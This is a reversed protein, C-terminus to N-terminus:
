TSFQHWDLTEIQFPHVAQTITHLASQYTQQAQALDHQQHGLTDLAQQLAQPPTAAPAKAVLHLLKVQQKQLQSIQRGIVSGLPKALARLAHFLDPVSVSGKGTVALKILAQAGDSVMFDCKWGAQTWWQAIQESWTQYSRNECAVESM